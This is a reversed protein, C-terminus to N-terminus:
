FKNKNIINNQHPLSLNNKKAFKVCWSHQYSSLGSQFKFSKSFIYQLSLYIAIGQPIRILLYLHLKIINMKKTKKSFHFLARKMIISREMNTECWNRKSPLLIAPWVSTQVTHKSITITLNHSILNLLSIPTLSWSNSLFVQLVRM